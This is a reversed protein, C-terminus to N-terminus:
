ENKSIRIPDILFHLYLIGVSMSKVDRIEAWIHPETFIIYVYIYMCFNTNAEKQPYLLWLIIYIYIEYINIYWLYVFVCTLTYTYKIYIYTCIYCCFILNLIIYICHIHPHFAVRLEWFIKLMEKLKRWFYIM